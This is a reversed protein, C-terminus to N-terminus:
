GTVLEPMPRPGAEAVAGREQRLAAEAVLERRAEELLQWVYRAFSRWVEIHFRDPDTRWLVIEAKGLVTRTCGDVPFADPSLDLPCGANLVLAADPGVLELATNRHGVAVLSHPLGGLATAFAQEIAAAESEAALLLWEDPGLWLAARSDAVAARCATTPLAVGFAKGAVEVAAPRGRFVFRAMPPLPALAAAPAPTATLGAFPSRRQDQLDRM